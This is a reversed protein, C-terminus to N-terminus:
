RVIAFAESVLQEINGVMFAGTGQVDDAMQVQRQIQEDAARGAAASELATRQLFKIDMFGNDKDFLIVHIGDSYFVKGPLAFQVPAIKSLDEPFLHSLRGLFEQDREAYGSGCFEQGGGSNGDSFNGLLHAIGILKM